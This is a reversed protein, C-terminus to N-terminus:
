NFVAEINGSPAAPSLYISMDGSVAHNVAYIRDGPPPAGSGADFVAVFAHDRAVGQPREGASKLPKVSVLKLTATGGEAKAVFDSGVHRSWENLGAKELAVSQRGWWSGAGRADRRFWTRNLAPAAVAGLAAVGVAIGAIFKRRSAAPAEAPRTM